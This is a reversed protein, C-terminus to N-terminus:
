NVKKALIALSMGIDLVHMIKSYNICIKLIFGQSPALTLSLQCGQCTGM